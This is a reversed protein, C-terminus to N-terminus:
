LSRLKHERSEILDELLEEDKPDIFFPISTKAIMNKILLLQGVYPTVVAIDETKFCQQKVLYAALEVAFNAEFSNRHSKGDEAGEEKHDHDFFFM